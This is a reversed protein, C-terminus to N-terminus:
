FPPVVAPSVVHDHIKRPQRIPANTAYTPPTYRM